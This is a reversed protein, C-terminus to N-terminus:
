QSRPADRRDLSADQQSNKQREKEEQRRIEALANDFFDWYIMNFGDNACKKEYFLKRDNKLWKWYPKMWFDRQFERVITQLLKHYPIPFKRDYVKVVDGATSLEQTDTRSVYDSVGKILGAIFSQLIRNRRREKRFGLLVYIFLMGVLVLSIEIM